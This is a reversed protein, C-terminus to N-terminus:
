TFLEIIDQRTLVLPFEKGTYPHYFQIVNYHCYDIFELFMNWKKDHWEPTSVIRGNRIIYIGYEGKFLRMIIINIIVENAFDNGFVIGTRLEKSTKYLTNDDEGICLLQYGQFDEETIHIAVLFRFILIEDIDSINPLDEYKKEMKKIYNILKPKYDAFSDLFTSDEYLHNELCTLISHYFCSGDQPSEIVKKNRLLIRWQYENMDLINSIIEVNTDIDSSKNSILNDKYQKKQIQKKKKQNSNKGM